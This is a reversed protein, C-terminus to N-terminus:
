KGGFCFGTLINAVIFDIYEAPDFEGTEKDMEEFATTVADHIGNDLANGQM